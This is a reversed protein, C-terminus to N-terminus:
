DIKLFTQYTKQLIMQAQYKQPFFKWYKNWKKTMSVQLNEIKNMNM